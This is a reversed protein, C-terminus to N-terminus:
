SSTDEHPWRKATRSRDYDKISPVSPVLTFNQGTDSSKTRSAGGFSSPQIRGRTSSKWHKKSDTHNSWTGTCDQDWLDREKSVIWGSWIEVQFMVMILVTATHAGYFSVNWHYHELYVCSTSCVLAGNNNFNCGKAVIYWGNWFCQSWVYSRLYNWFYWVGRGPGTNYQFGM